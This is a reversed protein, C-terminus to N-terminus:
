IFARTKQMRKDLLHCIIDADLIYGMPVWAARIDHKIANVLHQFSLAYKPKKAVRGTAILKGKMRCFQDTPSCLSLGYKFTGDESKQIALTAAGPLGPTRIHFLKSENM